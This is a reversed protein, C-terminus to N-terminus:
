LSISFANFHYDKDDFPDTLIWHIFTNTTKRNRVDFGNLGDNEWQLEDEFEEFIFRRTIATFSYAPDENQDHSIISM